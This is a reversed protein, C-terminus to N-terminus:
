VCFPRTKKACAFKQVRRSRKCMHLFSYTTHDLFVPSYSVLRSPWSLCRSVWCLWGPTTLRATATRGSPAWNTWTPRTVAATSQGSTRRTAKRTRGSVRGALPAEQARTASAM